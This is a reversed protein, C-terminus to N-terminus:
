RKSTSAALKGPFLARTNLQPIVGPVRHKRSKPEVATITSTIANRLERKKVRISANSSLRRLKGLVDEASYTGEIGTALRNLYQRYCQEAIGRRGLHEHCLGLRFMCDAKLTDAWTKSEWCPDKTPSVNARLLGIYISVAKRHEELADLAGALNWLTLPCDPVIKLSRLFCELADQYRGQEYFTAGLQTLVWHDTPENEREEELLKRAKAWKGQRFLLNVKDSLTEKAM